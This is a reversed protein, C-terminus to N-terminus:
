LWRRVRQCYNLYDEGFLKKLMKEEPKIQLYHLYIVFGIVLLLAALNQLKLAYALLIFSFGLYMPNRSYNFVGSNVLHSAKDPHTPDVTTKATRFSVVAAVIILVALGFVAYILVPMYQWNLNFKLLVFPQYTMIIIFIIVLLGPPIKLKLNFM